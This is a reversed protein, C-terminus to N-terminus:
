RRVRHLLFIESPFQTNFVSCRKIWSSNTIMRRALLVLKRKKAARSFVAHGLLFKDFNRKTKNKNTVERNQEYNYNKSLQILLFM